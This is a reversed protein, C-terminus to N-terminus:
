GSVKSRRDQNLERDAGKAHEATVLSPKEPEAEDSVTALRFLWLKQQLGDNPTPKLDAAGDEAKCLTKEWHVLRFPSDDVAADGDDEQRLFCSKIRSLPDQGQEHGTAFNVTKVRQLVAEVPNSPKVPQTAQVKQRKSSRPPGEGASTASIASDARSRATKPRFGTPTAGQPPYLANSNVSSGNQQKNASSPLPTVIRSAPTPPNQPSPASSYPHQASSTSTPLTYCEYHIAWGSGDVIEAGEKSDVKPTSDAENGKKGLIDPKLPIRYSHVSYAKTQIRKPDFSGSYLPPNSTSNLSAQSSSSQNGAGAPNASSSFSRARLFPPQSTGYASSSPSHM